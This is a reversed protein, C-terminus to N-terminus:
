AVFVRTQYRQGQRTLILGELGPRAELYSVAQDPRMVFCATSLADALAARPARVSVSVDTRPSRGAAPDIIHHYLRERDFYVEYNGSTAVAGGNMLVVAKPKLPQDPDSIAVRWPTAQDRQGLAAVDGGANILARTVGRAQIAAIGQDAIWGKALGDLTIGAGEATLLLGKGDARLGGIAQFARALAAREPPRGHQSFSQRYLDVVPAVTIDFAGESDAHVRQALDLVRTLEPALGNLRGEANLAAVPGGPRHRDFLPALAQMREFSGVLAEQARDVSPDVVTVAVVTGMLMRAEQAVHLGRGLAALGIAPSVLPLASAVGACGLLKLFSRRDFGQASNM